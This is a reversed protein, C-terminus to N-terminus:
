YINELKVLNNCKKSHKNIRHYYLNYKESLKLLDDYEIDNKYYKDRLDEVKNKEGPQVNMELKEFIDDMESLEIDALVEKVFKEKKAILQDRKAPAIDKNVKLMKEEKQIKKLNKQNKYSFLENM